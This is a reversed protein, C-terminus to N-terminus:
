IATHTHQTPHIAAELPSEAAQARRQKTFNNEIVFTAVTRYRATAAGRDVYSGLSNWTEWGCACLVDDTPEPITALKAAQAPAALSATHIPWVPNSTDPRESQLHWRTSYAMSTLLERLPQGRASEEAEFWAIPKEAQATKNEAM